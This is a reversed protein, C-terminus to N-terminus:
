EPPVANVAPCIVTAFAAPRPVLASLMDVPVVRASFAPMAAFLAILKAPVFVISTLLPTPVKDPTMDDPAATVKDFVPAPPKVKDPVFVYEPVVVKLAPSIVKAFATPKPVLARLM